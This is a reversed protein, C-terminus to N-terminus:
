TKSTTGQWAAAVRFMPNMSRADAVKQKAQKVAEDSAHM